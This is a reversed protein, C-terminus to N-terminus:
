IAVPEPNGVVGERGRVRAAVAAGNSLATERFYERTDLLADLWAGGHVESLIPWDPHEDPRATQSVHAALASRKVDLSSGVDVYRNFANALRWAPAAAMAARRTRSRIMTGGLPIIPWISWIWVGYELLRVRPLLCAAARTAKWAARHDAPPEDRHPLAIEAPPRSLFIRQLASTVDALHHFLDGDPFGLVTVAEPAVGLRAAAERAEAARRRVLEEEGVFRRHSTRGDSVIVIEVHAGARVKRHILGGCGLVEDDPHPAVVILPDRLRSVPYPEARAAIRQLIWRRVISSM